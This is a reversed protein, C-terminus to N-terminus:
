HQARSCRAVMLDRPRTSASSATMSLGFVASSLAIATNRFRNFAWFGDMSLSAMAATSNECRVRGRRGSVDPQQHIVNIADQELRPCCM